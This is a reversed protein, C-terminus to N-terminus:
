DAVHLRLTLGRLALFIRYYQLDGLNELYEVYVVYGM